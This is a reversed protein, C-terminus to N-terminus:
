INTGGDVDDIWASILGGTSSNIIISGHSEGSKTEILTYKFETSSTTTDILQYDQEVNRKLKALDEEVHWIRYHIKRILKLIWEKFDGTYKELQFWDLREKNDEM